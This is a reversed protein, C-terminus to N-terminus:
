IDSLIYEKLTTLASIKAAEAEDASDRLTNILIENREAESKLRVIELGKAINLKLENAYDDRALNWANHKENLVETAKLGAGANREIIRILDKRKLGKFDDTGRCDAVVKKTSM